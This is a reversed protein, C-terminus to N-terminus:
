RGSRPRVSRRAGRHAPCRPRPHDWPRACAARRRSRQAGSPDPRGSSAARRLRRRVHGAAAPAPQGLVVLRQPGLHGAAHSGHGRGLAPAEGRGRGVRGAGRRRGGRGNGGRAKRQRLVEAEAAVGRGRPHMHRMQGRRGFPKGRLGQPHIGPGMARQDPALQPGIRADVQVASDLAGVFAAASQAKGWGVRGAHIPQRHLNGPEVRDPDVITLAGIGAGALYMIAPSGLGGAGVILVHARALRAQGAAGVEPLAIQRAHRDTM